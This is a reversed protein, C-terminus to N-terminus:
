RSDPAIMLEVIANIDRVLLHRCLRVLCMVETRRVIINYQYKGKAKYNSEEMKYLKRMVTNMIPHNYNKKKSENNM